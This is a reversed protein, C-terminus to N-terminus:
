NLKFNFKEAAKALIKQELPNGSNETFGNIKNLENAKSKGHKLSVGIEVLDWYDGSKKEKDSEALSKYNEAKAKMSETLCDINEQKELFSELLSKRISNAKDIDNKYIKHEVATLIKDSEDPLLNKNKLVFDKVSLNFKVANQIQTLEMEAKKEANLADKAEDVVSKAITKQSEQQTKTEVSETPKTEVNPNKTILLNLIQQEQEATFPM